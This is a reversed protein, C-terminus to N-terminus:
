KRLAATWNIVVTVPQPTAERRIDEALNVLFRQGDPAVGFQPGAQQGTLALRVSFVSEVRGVSFAPGSGDVSAAMGTGTNPSIYFIEKGDRRWVPAAGGGTSVQWKGAATNTGQAASAAQQTGAFPMVYVEEQGSENSQYAIWRGDPSFRGLVEFFPTALLPFPKPEGFLPLVWLDPNGTGTMYLLFRGDPSWDTPIKSVDSALLVEEDGSGNSAKQYIDLRNKRAAGWAVRSGDPSWVPFIDPTTDFTFRTRVGRAIDTIWLDAGVVTAAKSGDRSLSLGLYNARDGIAVLPQGKRDIWTLQSGGAQAAGTQYVLVGDTSASFVGYPPQVGQRQIQDAVPVMEGTTTRQMPDFPQAMLTADRLFLLHDQTYQVNTSGSKLLEVQSTSDLTGVFISVVPEAPGSVGGAYLLHQGDPLFSPRFRSGDGPPMADSPVGGSDAVKKLTFANRGPEFTSFVITGNRSWTGGGGPSLADCLTTPPGGVVDIKKLKNDAIFGLFRSDPSWFMSSVGETGPLPQATASDLARLLITDRGDARHAVMALRRGDPSIVLSTPTGQRGALALQWGDPLTISLRLTRLPEPPRRPLYFFAATVLAGVLTTIALIAIRGWLGSRAPRAPEALATATQPGSTSSVGELAFALDGASQFRSAPNKELCRDVIRALAPPIHREAVPLDPPDEKLIATMTDATTEGRFARTGSLMEYLVVGVAFIDSRHDAPKGRVQEPAMYGLTGLVMGPMTDPAITPMVSAGAQVEDREVLKALGFDLIKTRGDDTVFLNAPKLDRHVIGKEHAAALGKAIQVAYEVAKRVPLPGATLRSALTEGDLLESVIYPTPSGSSLDTGIDYVALIFASNLGAAARAEQEFRRLRDSDAALESPLVKVAVDRGLRPDRARYVEGMGGQGLPAIIEYPGLRAGTVLPM